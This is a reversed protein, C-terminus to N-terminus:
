RKRALKRKVTHTTHLHGKIIKCGTKTYLPNASWDFRYLTDIGVGLVEAGQHKMMAALSGYYYDTHEHM